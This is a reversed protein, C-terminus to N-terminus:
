SSAGLYRALLEPRSRVGLKRYILKVYTHLTSPTVGLSHAAEKESQGSLLVQLVQRERPALLKLERGDAREDWCRSQLLALHLLDRDEISFPRAGVRKKFVVSRLVGDSTLSRMGVLVDDLRIPLHVDRHLETEFWESDEIVDRRRLAYPGLNANQAMCASLPDGHSTVHSFCLARDAASQWGFDLCEVVQWPRESFAGRAAFSVGVDADVLRAVGRMWHERPCSGARSLESVEGQLKLLREVDRTRISLRPTLSM